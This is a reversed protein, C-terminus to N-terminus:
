QSVKGEQRKDRRKADSFARDHLGLQNHFEGSGSEGASINPHDIGGNEAMSWSLEWPGDIFPPVPENARIFFNSRLM